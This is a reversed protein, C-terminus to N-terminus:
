WWGMRCVHSRSVANGWFWQKGGLIVCLKSWIGCVMCLDESIFNETCGMFDSTYHGWLSHGFGPIMRPWRDPAIGRSTRSRPCPHASPCRSRVALPPLPPLQLSPLHSSSGCKETDLQSSVLHAKFSFCIKCFIARPAAIELPHMFPTGPVENETLAMHTVFKLVDGFISFDIQYQKLYPLSLNVHYFWYEAFPTSCPGLNHSHFLQSRLYQGSLSGSATETSESYSANSVRSLVAHEQMGRCIKEMCRIRHNTFWINADCAMPSDAHKGM